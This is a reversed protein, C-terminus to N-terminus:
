QNILTFRIAQAHCNEFENDWTFVAKAFGDNRTVTVISEM